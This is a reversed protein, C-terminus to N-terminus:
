SPVQPRTHTPPLDFFPRYAPGGGFVSPAAAVGEDDSVELSAFADVETIPVQNDADGQSNDEDDEDGHGTAATALSRRRGKGAHPRRTGGTAGYAGVAGAAPLSPNAVSTPPIKKRSSSM